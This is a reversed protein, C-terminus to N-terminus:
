NAERVYRAIYFSYNIMYTGFREAEMLSYEKITSNLTKGIRHVLILSILYVFLVIFFLKRYKEKM